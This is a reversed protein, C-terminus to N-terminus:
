HETRSAAKADRDLAELVVAGHGSTQTSQTTRPRNIHAVARALPPKPKSFQPHPARSREIHRATRDYASAWDAAELDDILARCSNACRAGEPTNHAALEHRKVQTHTGCPCSAFKRSVGGLEVLDVVLNSARLPRLTNGRLPATQTM